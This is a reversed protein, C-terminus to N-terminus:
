QTTLLKELPTEPAKPLFLSYILVVLASLVGLGVLAKKSFTRSRFLQIYDIFSMHRVSHIWFASFGILVADLLGQLPIAYVIAIKSFVLMFVFATLLSFLGFVVLDVIVSAAGRSPPPLEPEFNPLSTSM